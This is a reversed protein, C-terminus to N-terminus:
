KKYDNDSLSSCYARKVNSNIFIFGHSSIGTSNISQSRKWKSIKNAIEKFCRNVFARWFKAFTM